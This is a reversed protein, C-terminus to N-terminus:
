ELLGKALQTHYTMDFLPLSSVSSINTLSNKINRIETDLEKLDEVLITLVFDYEGITRCSYTIKKNLALFDLFDKEQKKGQINFKLFLFYTQKGLKSLNIMTRFGLVIKKDVLKQIRKRVGVESFGIEDAIKWSPISCDESISQVIKKDEEDLETKNMPIISRLNNTEEKESFIQKFSDKIESIMTLITIKQKNHGFTENLFEQYEVLNQIEKSAFGIIFDYEGSIKGIYQTLSNKKIKSIVEKEKTESLNQTQILAIYGGYSFNALNIRGQYGTIIGEKELKKIRYDLVERSIRIRKALVNKSENANESIEYLIKRDKNDM